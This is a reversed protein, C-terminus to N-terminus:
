SIKKREKAQVTMIELPKGNNDIIKATEKLGEKYYEVHVDDVNYDNTVFKFDSFNITLSKKNDAGVPLAINLTFLMALLLAMFRNYKKM